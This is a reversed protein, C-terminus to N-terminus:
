IGFLFRPMPHNGFQAVATASETGLSRSQGSKNLMDLETESLEMSRGRNRCYMCVLHVTVDRSNEPGM